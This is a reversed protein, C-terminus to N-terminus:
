AADLATHLRVQRVVVEGDGRLDLARTAGDPGWGAATLFERATDDTANIWHRATTFRDGRLTDAAATLLRSGHGGGRHTPDVALELLDADTNADADPDAGPALSAFGVVVGAECAVLIRHRPSPAWRIAEDWRETLAAPTLSELVEAPLVEAYSSRWSVAQVTAVAAADEPRAPRVSVDAVPRHGHDHGHEDSM